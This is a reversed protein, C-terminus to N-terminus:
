EKQLPALIEKRNKDLSVSKTWTKYGPLILTVTHTQGRALNGSLVPTVGAKKGDITVAAGRPTSDIRLSGAEGPVEVTEARTEKKQTSTPKPKAETKREIKPTPKPKAEIKTQTKIIPEPKPEPKTEIKTEPKPETKTETKVTIEPETKVSTAPTDTKPLVILPTTNEKTEVSPTPSSDKQIPQQIDLKPEENKIEEKKIEEKQIVPEIPKPEPQDPSLGWWVLLVILVAGLAFWVKSIKKKPLLEELPKEDSPASSDTPPPAIIETKHELQSPSVEDPKATDQYMEDPITDKITKSVVLSKQDTNELLSLKTKSDLPKQTKEKEHRAGLEPAFWKRILSALNKPSFDHYQSYLVKTLAIQFDGATEYRTNLDTALARALISRVNKPIKDGFSSETVHTSRIKKLVEFQTEGSFFREGTIMEFLLLGASFIDTRADVSNGLAQEPSMYTIKGKLIGSSTHSVNLAAKAIGFDVIKTEGEFSILINQPSVDRHVIGMPRGQDDRKSHAYDLGKCIESVIYLCIPLPIKEKLESARLEVERLNVGDIYEMSIYYDDGIKGLDYIQVINTHSLRVVLKAEDTLMAIFEKDASYHSLIKKIALQKEFGDVGFTKAKYIEAMGGIAIRETLFYKGFPKPEFGAM